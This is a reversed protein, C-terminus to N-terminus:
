PLRSRAPNLRQRALPSRSVGNPSYFARAKEQDHVFVEVLGIRM